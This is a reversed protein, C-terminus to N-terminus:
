GMSSPTSPAAPTPTPAPVAPTPQPKPKDDSMAPPPMVGENPKPTPPPTPTAQAKVAVIEAKAKPPQPASTLRIKWANTGNEAVALRPQPVVTALFERMSDSMREAQKRKYANAIADTKPADLVVHVGTDRLNESLKEALQVKPIKHPLAQDTVFVTRPIRVERVQATIGTEKKLVGAILSRANDTLDEDAIRRITLETGRNGIDFSWALWEGDKDNDRLWVAVKEFVEWLRQHYFTPPLNRAAEEPTLVTPQEREMRLSALQKNVWESSEELNKRMFERSPIIDLTVSPETGSVRSLDLTLQAVLEDETGPEGVLTMRVGVNGHTVVQYKSLVKHDQEFDSLVRGVGKRVNVEWAVRQLAESLPFLVVFVFLLPLFLRFAQWRSVNGMVKVNKTIRFMASNRDDDDLVREEVLHVDVAAFGALIFFLDSVLIIAALNAVFLLTAGWFIDPSKIGLGFGIVCLPPVLAIAIATGAAATVTDRSGKAVTFSAALGCFLAVILDLATPQTRALIESTVEQFPMAFTMAAALGIVMGMSMLIQMLAKLAFYFNGIAFSVGVQVIPTMLPSVLMAGIVVATSNLVLGLHAIGTAIFLQVWYVMPNRETAFFLGEVAGQRDEVSIGLWDAIQDSVTM